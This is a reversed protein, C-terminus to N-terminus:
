HRLPKVSGRRRERIRILPSPQMERCAKLIAASLAEDSNARYRYERPICHQLAKILQVYASAQWDRHGSRDKRVGTPLGHKEVTARVRYVWLRWHERDKFGSSKREELKAAANRCAAILCSVMDAVGQFTHAREASMLGLYEEITRDAAIVADSAQGKCLEQLLANAAKDLATIRRIADAVPAATLEFMGFELFRNTLSQIEERVANPIPSGYADEIRSWESSDIQV